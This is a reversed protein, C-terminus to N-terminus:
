PKSSFDFNEVVGAVGEVFSSNGSDAVAGIVNNQGDYNYNEQQENAMHINNFNGGDGQYGGWGYNVQAQTQKVYRPQGRGGYANPMLWMDWGEKLRMTENVIDVELRSISSNEQLRTLIDEYPACISAVNPYHLAIAVPIYGAEDMYSRIYTDM